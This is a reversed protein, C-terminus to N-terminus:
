PTAGPKGPGAEGGQGRVLQDFMRAAPTSLCAPSTAVKAFQAHVNAVEKKLAATEQRHVIVLMQNKKDDEDRAEIQLRRAEALGEAKETRLDSVELRLIVCYAIALGAIVLKWEKLIALAVTSM